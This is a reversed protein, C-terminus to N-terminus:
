DPWDWGFPLNVVDTVVSGNLSTLALRTRTGMPSASLRGMEFRHRTTGVGLSTPVWQEGSLAIGFTAPAM